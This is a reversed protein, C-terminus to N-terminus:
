KCLIKFLADGITNPAAHTLEGSASSSAFPRGTAMGREFFSQDLFQFQVTTCNAEVLTRYSRAGFEDQRDMDILLWARRKNSPLVQYTSPDAYIRVGGQESMKKWSAFAPLALLSILIVAIRKM